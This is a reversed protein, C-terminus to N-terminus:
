YYKGSQLLFLCTEIPCSLLLAEIPRMLYPILDYKVQGIKLIFIDRLQLSCSNLFTSGGSIAYAELILMIQSLDFENNENTFISILYKKVLSDLLENYHGYPINRAIALWLSIGDKLLYSSDDGNSNTLSVEILPIALDYLAISANGAQKVM